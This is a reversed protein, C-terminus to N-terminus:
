TVCPHAGYSKEEMLQSGLLDNIQRKIEARRDNYRYVSRALEVFRPGFDGNHECRRLDDEVLWLAENVAKLDQPLTGLNACRSLARGSASRLVALERLVNERKTKDMIRESKIELISIKDLLEGPAIEVLIPGAPRPRAVQDRLASAMREFVQEWNGWSKQRFLRMTPYWPSDDRSMLWVWHASFPLAVWVPVALAGALHAIATDSTIILDLNKMVAATDRFPGSAEDLRSGLGVVPFDVGQLQESGFGKQLSLIHVGELRALPEFSALPISRLRDGKYKPNGQWAIGVRFGRYVSLEARWQEILGPEAFLYPVNAPVDQLTTRFIGPLSLLPAHCDFPPPTTGQELFQDVSTLPALLPLLAKPCACLVRAGREKVLQFYRAALITDGLGQEAHLLITKGDLPSGEWLPEKYPLSGFESCRWRWEYEPWAESWHGLSLCAMARAMHADPSDPKYELVHTYVAAAEEAKGQGLLATALNGCADIYDPQARLAAKYCGEAEALKGQEALATGLNHLAEAYGPRIRLAERYSAEAEAYRRQVVLANGLNSYAEPYNHRLRIAERHHGRAEDHRELRTLVNGLNTHAEPFAARLLLAKRYSAEADELRGMAALVDGLNNHADPYDPRLALAQHYHAAAEAWKGQHRLAAGLNNHAEPYDPRLRLAEGFAGVAEDLKKQAVLANGLNNWAELFSPRLQLAQRYSAVAEQAEGAARQAIGLLCWADADAPNAALAQRCWRAAETPNGAQYADRAFGLAQRDTQMRM